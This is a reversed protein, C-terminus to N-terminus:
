FIVSGCPFTASVMPNQTNKLTTCAAGQVRITNGNVLIWDVGFMLTVGNVVVIGSSAQGDDITSTLSLDCSIVGNIISQFAAQLDAVNNVPFYPINPQGAVWGQGANAVDQFHQSNQNIALVYVPIGATYAARAAAVSAGEPDNLNACSNPLGDTALVIVPPSDAPPPLTTFGAVAADMAAATPTNNGDTKSDISTRIATANNLARPVSTFDNNAGNCTYLLSGFYAKTELGAVVGTGGVLADRMGKYRTTNAAINNTYMSGSQDLVLQISPTKPMPTFNVAPCNADPGNSGQGTGVCTGDTTCEYGDGCESGGVTCQADCFGDPSCHWGSPCSNAAGPLPDCATNCTAPATSPDDCLSGFEKPGCGGFALAATLFAYHLRNM